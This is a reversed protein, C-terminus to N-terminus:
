SNIKETRETAGTAQRGSLINPSEPHYGTMPKGGLYQEFASRSTQRTHVALKGAGIEVSGTQMDETM